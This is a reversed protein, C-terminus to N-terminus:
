NINKRCGVSSSVALITSGSEQLHIVLWPTVLLLLCFGYIFGLPRVRRVNELTWPSALFEYYRWWVGDATKNAEICCRYCGGDACDILWWRGWSGRAGSSQLRAPQKALVTATLRTKALKWGHLSLPTPMV